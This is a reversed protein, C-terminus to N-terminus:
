GQSANTVTNRVNQISGAEQPGVETSGSSTPPPGGGRALREQHEGVYRAALSSFAPGAIGDDELLMGLRIKTESDIDEFGNAVEDVVAQQVDSHLDPHMAKLHKLQAPVAVGAELDDVVTEPYLVSNWLIAFDRLSSESPPVGRPHFLSTAVSAPLNEAVYALMQGTRGSLKQFLAPDQAPLDGMSEALAAPLAGPDLSAKLLLDRKAEFSERPGSYGESFLKLPTSAIAVRAAAGVGVDSGEGVRDAYRRGGRVIRRASQKVMLKAEDDLVRWATKVAGRALGIPLGGTALELATEPLEKAAGKVAGAIGGERFGKAARYATGAAGGLFHEAATEVAEGFVGEGGKSAAKTVAAHTQEAVDLSRAAQQATARMKDLRGAPMTGWKKHVAIRDELASVAERLGRSEGRSLAGRIADEDGLDGATRKLTRGLDRQFDAANGWLSADELGARLSKVQEAAEPIARLAAEARTAAKFTSLAGSTELLEDAAKKFAARAEPTKALASADDLESGARTAWSTQAPSDDSLMTKLRADTVAETRELQKGTEPMSKKLDRAAHEYQLDSTRHLAADRDPGPPMERAAQAVRKRGKAASRAVVNEGGEGVAAALAEDAKGLVKSAGRGLVAPLARGIIEGGIGYLMVNGVSVDRQEYRAQEVEEALGVAAGEAVATGATLARGAAGAAKLGRGALGAAGLGPALAGAAQTGMQAFPSRHRLIEERAEAEEPTGSLRDVLGFSATRVASEVGAQLQRGATGQGQERQRQRAREDAESQSVDSLGRERKVAEAEGPDVQVYSGDKAKLITKGDVEAM